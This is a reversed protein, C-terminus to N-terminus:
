LPNFLVKLTNQALEKAFLGKFFTCNDILNNAAEGLM